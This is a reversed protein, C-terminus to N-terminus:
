YLVLCYNNSGSNFHYFLNNQVLDLGVCLSLDVDIDLIDDILEEVESVVGSSGLLGVIGGQNGGCGSRCGGGLINLDLDLLDSLLNDVLSTVASGIPEIVGSVVDDM